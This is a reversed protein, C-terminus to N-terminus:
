IGKVVSAVSKLKETTNKTALVVVKKKMHRLEQAIATYDGDRSAICFVDISKNTNIVHRIDKIIKNDIKNHNAEGCMLIPKIGHAKASSKWAATSPDNQRAYYRIEAIDGISKSQGIIQSCHDASINEADIFVMTNKKRHSTKTQGEDDCAEYDWYSDDILTSPDGGSEIWLEADEGMVTDEGLAKTNFCTRIICACKEKPYLFPTELLLRYTMTSCVPISGTAKLNRVQREGLQALAGCSLHKYIQKVLFLIECWGHFARDFRLYGAM